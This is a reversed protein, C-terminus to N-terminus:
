KPRLASKSGDRAEMSGHRWAEMEENRCGQHIGRGMLGAMRGDVSM